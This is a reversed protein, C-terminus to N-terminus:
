GPPSRQRGRPRPVWQSRGTGVRRPFRRAPIGFRRPRAAPRASGGRPPEAWSTAVIDAFMEDVWEQDDCLLDVLERVVGQDTLEDPPTTLASALRAPRAGAGVVAGPDPSM